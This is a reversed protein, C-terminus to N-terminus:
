EEAIVLDGPGSLFVPESLEVGGGKVARERWAFWGRTGLSVGVLYVRALGNLRLRVVEASDVIVSAPDGGEKPTVDYGATDIAALVAPVHGVPVGASVLQATIDESAGM